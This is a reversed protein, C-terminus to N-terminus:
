WRIAMPPQRSSQRPLSPGRRGPKAEVVVRQRLGESMAEALIRAMTDANGGAGFGHMLTVPKVPYEQARAPLVALALIWLFITLMIRIAM